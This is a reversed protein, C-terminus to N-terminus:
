CSSCERQGRWEKFGERRRTCTNAPTTCNLSEWRAVSGNWAQAAEMTAEIAREDAIIYFSRKQSASLPVARNKLPRLALSGTLTDTAVRSTTRREREGAGSEEDVINPQPYALALPSYRRKESM